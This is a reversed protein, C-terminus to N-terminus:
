HGEHADSEETVPLLVITGWRVLTKNYEKFSVIWFWLDSPRAGPQEIPHPIIELDPLANKLEILARNIHYDSTVLRISSYPKGKLWAKVEEANQKTTTAEYGLTICCDPMATPSKWKATIDRMHVSPHVGSIFLHPAQGNAFLELGKEIRSKGGTLVVIADTKEDINSPTQLFIQGYFVLLGVSWVLLARLGFKTITKIKKGM